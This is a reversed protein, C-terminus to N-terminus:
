LLKNPEGEAFFLCFFNGEGNHFVLFCSLNKVHYKVVFLRVDCVSAGIASHCNVAEDSLKGKVCVDQAQFAGASIRMEIYVYRIVLFYAQGYGANEALCIM